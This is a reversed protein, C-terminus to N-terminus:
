PSLIPPPRSVGFARDSASADRARAAGELRPDFDSLRGDLDTSAGLGLGGVLRQFRAARDAAARPRTSSAALAVGAAVALALVALAVGEPGRRTM